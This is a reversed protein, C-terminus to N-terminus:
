GDRFPLSEGVAVVRSSATNRALMEPAPDLAVVDFRSFIENAAGTGAGLDLLRGPPLQSVARMRWAQDQGLSLLRNIRDYSDAIDAFVKGNSM